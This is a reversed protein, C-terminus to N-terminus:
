RALAANHRALVRRVEVLGPGTDLPLLAPPVEALAPHVSEAPGTFLVWAHLDEDHRCRYIFGEARPLWRRIAAAWERTVVYDFPESKTLWLDQGVQTLNPGHLSVVSMDRTVELQTLVRGEVRRLPVIRASGGLPLDRCLTEAIAADPSEGAYLFAYSGDLSDFRSRGLASPAATPNM